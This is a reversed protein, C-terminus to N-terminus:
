KLSPNQSCGPWYPSVAYRYDCSILLILCSFRKFESLLPQLSGLNCWQVRPQPCCLSVRDMTICVQLRLKQFASTPSDSSGLLDLSCHATITGSCELRSGATMMGPTQQGPAASAPLMAGGEGGNPTAHLKQELHCFQKSGQQQSMYTNRRSSLIPSATRHATGLGQHGRVGAREQPPSTTFGEGQEGQKDNLCICRFASDRLLKQKDPSCCMENQENEQEPAAKM